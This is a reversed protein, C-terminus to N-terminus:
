RCFLFLSVSVSILSTTALPSSPYFLSLNPTQSYCICVLIYLISLCCPGVTYCLSSSEIDQSLGYHFLILFLICIHIVSDSQQVASILVVHYILLLLFLFTKLTKLFSDLILFFYQTQSLLFVCAANSNM